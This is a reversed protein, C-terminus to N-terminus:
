HPQAADLAAIQDLSLGMQERLFRVMTWHRAGHEDFPGFTGCYLPIWRLAQEALEERSPAKQYEAYPVSRHEIFFRGPLRKECLERYERTQLILFHWVDDISQEVPLFLGSLAEPFASILYLFRLCEVVRHDAEREDSGTTRASDRVAEQYIQTDLLARITGISPYLPARGDIGNM